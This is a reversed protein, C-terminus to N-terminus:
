DFYLWGGNCNMLQRVGPIATAEVQERYASLFNTTTGTPGATTTAAQTGNIYLTVNGTGDSYIVWNIGGNDPVTVTTAVDTLTTGNHVTLTVFSGVGGVKKLGIGKQTMDGTTDTSYGGLTIRSMTNADGLYNPTGSGGMNAYGSMFVKRSFNTQERNATSGGIGALGNTGFGFRARGTALSNLFMQRAFNFGSSGTVSGSGSVATSNIAALSRLRPDTLQFGANGPSITTTTSTGAIIQAATAFAPVAATVFATTAVATTNNGPSQTVATTGTPLSPTGTFTPSALNAKLDLASQLDTQASLTGTIGGWAVSTAPTVGGVNVVWAAYTGSGTNHNVDVTMVGTGSNYTLVEGHMHHAADYSITVNQTPTYSLGTGVTLTKNGNNITLSTTSSTLYRDGPIVVDWAANKRAYQSGNSPADNIVALSGLGSIDTNSLTIAGTRGAVSTVPASTLYGQAKVFATTAISTDNDATAPTPATPNGTLAANNFGPFAITQTTGNGFIISSRLYRNTSPAPNDAATTFVLGAQTLFTGFGGDSVISGDVDTWNEQIVDLYGAVLTTRVRNGTATGGNSSDYELNLASNTLYSDWIDLEATQYVLNLGFTEMKEDAVNTFDFDTLSRYGSVDVNIWQTNYNVGDVKALVQGATGGVPVGVGPVGQPGQAGAPGQPGPVGVSGELTGAVVGTITGTITSQDAAFVGSITGFTSATSTIIADPM